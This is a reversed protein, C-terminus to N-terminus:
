EMYLPDSLNFLSEDISGHQLIPEMQEREIRRAREECWTRHVGLLLADFLSHAIQRGGGYNIHVYDKGAWGNRVFASMGGKAAMADSTAWFAAGQNVAAERQWKVMSGLSNMPAFGDEGKVWRESVGMVLVAAGPFCQRVYEIMQEIQASYKSYGYVGQQMINLGYQLVVLDYPSHSQLQANLAPSSWFMARGNNSRVSFNDVVIGEEGFFQAGYGLFGSAGDLVKLSLSTIGDHYIEIQRLSSDGEVEFIKVLSDNVKVELRSPSSSKFWIKAGDSSSLCERADTLEWRTSAGQSPVSVWGTVMFNSKVPESCKQSQMINHTTWGKSQTKITRRFGTLPSDMPAFGPGLGGFERQLAERLDATLIDGEVFSDGMFAVRISQATAIKLYLSRMSNASTSDYEEIPVDCRESLRVTDLLKPLQSEEVPAAMPISSPDIDDEVEEPEDPEIGSTYWKFVRQPAEESESVMQESLAASIQEWDVEAEEFEAELLLAESNDSDTTTIESLINARKLQVGFLEVPPIFSVGCLILILGLTAFFGRSTYDKQKPKQEKDIM